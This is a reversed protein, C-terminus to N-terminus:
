GNETGIQVEKDETTFALILCATQRWHWPPIVKSGKTLM